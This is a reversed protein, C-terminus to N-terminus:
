RAYDNSIKARDYGYPIFQSGPIGLRQGIEAIPLGKSARAIDIDNM